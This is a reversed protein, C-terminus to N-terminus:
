SIWKVLITGDEKLEKFFFNDVHRTRGGINWNQALDKSGKNDVDLIIPKKVKLEM